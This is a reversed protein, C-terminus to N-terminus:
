VNGKLSYCELFAYIEPLIVAKLARELRKKKQALAICDAKPCLYASRGMGQHLSVQNTSHERVIRLFHNKPAVLRCSICRRYNPEM